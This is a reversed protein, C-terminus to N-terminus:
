YTEKAQETPREQKNQLDRKSSHGVTIRLVPRTNKNRELTHERESQNEMIDSGMDPGAGWFTSPAACTAHRLM